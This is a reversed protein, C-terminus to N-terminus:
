ISKYLPKVKYVYRRLAANNACKGLWWHPRPEIGKGAVTYTPQTQQNEERSESNRKGPVRTKGEWWLDVNSKIQQSETLNSDGWNTFCVHEALDM